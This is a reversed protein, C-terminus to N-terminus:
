TPVGKRTQYRYLALHLIRDPKRFKGFSLPPGRDM